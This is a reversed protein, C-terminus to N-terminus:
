SLSLNRKISKQEINDDSDSDSVNEEKIVEEPSAEKSVLETLFDNVTTRLIKLSSRYSNYDNIDVETNIEKLINKNQSYKFKLSM